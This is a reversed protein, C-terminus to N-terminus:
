KGGTIKNYIFLGGFGIIFFMVALVLATSAKGYFIFEYLSVLWNAIGFTISIQFLHKM